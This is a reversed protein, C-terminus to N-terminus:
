WQREWQRYSSFVPHRGCGSVGGFASPYDPTVPQKPIYLLYAKFYVLTPWVCTSRENSPSKMHDVIWGLWKIQNFPQFLQNTCRSSWRRWNLWKWYWVNRSFVIDHFCNSFKLRLWFYYIAVSCYAKQNGKFACCSFVVLTCTWSCHKVADAGRFLQFELTGIWVNSREHLCKFRQRKWHHEGCPSVLLLKIYPLVWLLLNLCQQM